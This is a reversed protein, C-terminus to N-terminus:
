KVIATVCSKMADEVDFDNDTQKSKGNDVVKDPEVNETRYSNLDDNCSLIPVGGTTTKSFKL